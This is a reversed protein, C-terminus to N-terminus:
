FLTSTGVYPFQLVSFIRHCQTRKKHGNKSKWWRNTTSQQTKKVIELRVWQGGRSKNNLYLPRWLPFFFLVLLDWSHHYTKTVMPKRFPSWFQRSQQEITGGIFPGNNVANNNVMIHYWRWQPYGRNRKLPNSLWTKFIKNPFLCFWPRIVM